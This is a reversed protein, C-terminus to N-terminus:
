TIKTCVTDFQGRKIKYHKKLREVLKEYISPMMLSNSEFQLVDPLPLNNDLLSNVIVSDHGETDIKMFGVSTVNNQSYVYSLPVVEISHQVIHELKCYTLLTPHVVGISNCGRIWEPYQDLYKPNCYFADGDGFADSVAYNLRTWGERQPLRNFYYPIPEISLGPGPASEILTRFDSTGIEINQYRM